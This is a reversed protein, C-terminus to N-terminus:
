EGQASLSTSPLALALAARHQQHDGTLLPLALRRAIAVHIADAFKLALSPKATLATAAVIDVSTLPESRWADLFTRLDAVKLAVVEDTLRAARGRASIASVLEGLGFDSCTLTASAPVVAQFRDLGVDGLALGAIVSADVYFRADSM